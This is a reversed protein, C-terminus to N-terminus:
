SAPPTRVAAPEAAPARDAGLPRPPQRRAADRLRRRDTARPVGHARRQEDPHRDTGHSEAITTGAAHVSELSGLDLAVLELSADPVSATIDEVASAAKAQNRVAMVVHAGAATLARASELGLGGNAGTVVAVRGTLDPIDNTTWSM